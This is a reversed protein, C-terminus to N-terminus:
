TASSIRSCTFRMGAMAPACASSARMSRSRGGIVLISDWRAHLEGIVDHVIGHDSRPGSFFSALREHLRLYDFTAGHERRLEECIGRLAQQYRSAITYTYWRASALVLALAPGVRDLIERGLEVHLDRRCDEFVLM